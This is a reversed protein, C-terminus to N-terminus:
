QARRVEVRGFDGYDAVITDGPEITCVGTCTGSMVVHGAALRHGRASLHNAMWALANWPDDLVSSGPGAGTEEGNRECVVDLSALDPLDSVDVEAGLVVGGNAGSDAIHSMYPVGTFETFRSDVIEIAPAVARTAAKVDDVSYPAERPELDADLLFAFECEAMPQVYNPDLESSTTVQGAFIRGSFPGPSGLIEMALASTCGTKWGEIDTGLMAAHADAIAYADAEDAPEFEGLSAILQRNTRADTLLRAAAEISDDM